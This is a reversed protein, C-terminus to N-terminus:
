QMGEQATLSFAGMGVPASAMTPQPTDPLRAGALVSQFDLAALVADRQSKALQIRLHNEQHESQWLRVKATEGHRASAELLRKNDAYAALSVDRIQVAHHEAMSLAGLARHADLLAQQTVADLELRAMQVELEAAKIRFQGQNFLPLTIQAQFMAAQDGEMDKEWGGGVMLSPWVQARALALRQEAGQIRAQAARLDLRQQQVLAILDAQDQPAPAVPLAMEAQAQAICQAKTSWDLGLDGRGMAKLLRAKAVVLAQQAEMQRTSAEAMNIRADNVAEGRAEGATFQAQTASLVRQAVAVDALSLANIEEASAVDAYAAHVEVATAVTIAAAEFLASRLRADAQGITADRKWLWDVQAGLMALLPTAGMDLPVGAGLQLTPNPALQSDQYLARRQEAELLARRLGRNNQLAVQLAASAGLPSQGDWATSPQDWPADAPLPAGTRQQLDPVADALTPGPQTTCGPLLALLGLLAASGLTRLAAPGAAPGATRVAAAWHTPVGCRSPDTCSTM